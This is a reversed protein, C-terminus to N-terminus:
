KSVCHAEDVTPIRGALDLYVRRLFESDDAPVSMKADGIKAEILRDIRVPLSDAANVALLPQAIVLSTAILIHYIM